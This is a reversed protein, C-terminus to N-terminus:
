RDRTSTDVPLRRRVQDLVLIAAGAFLSVYCMPLGEFSPCEITGAVQRFSFYVAILTVAGAGVFFSVDGAPGSMWAGLTVAVYAVFVFFCAPVGFLTPCTPERALESVVLWGSLMVGVFGLGVIAGTLREGTIRPM